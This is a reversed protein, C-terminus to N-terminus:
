HNSSQSFLNIVVVGGIIMAMGIIAPLDPKQGMFIWAILATIVIGVGSWIAYTIGVPLVRFVLSVLYFAVSYAAIAGLTPTLKTFGDSYKLLMTGCIEAAIAIALLIWHNM